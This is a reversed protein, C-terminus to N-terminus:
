FSTSGFLRGLELLKRVRGNRAQESPTSSRVIETKDLYASVEEASVVDYVKAAFAVLEATQQLHIESARASNIFKEGILYELASELGFHTRIGEAAACQENWRKHFETPTAMDDILPTRNGNM